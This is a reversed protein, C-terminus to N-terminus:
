KCRYLLTESHPGLAQLLQAVDPAHDEGSLVSVYSNM